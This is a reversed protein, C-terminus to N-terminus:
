LSLAEIDALFAARKDAPIEALSPGYKNRVSKVEEGRGAEILPRIADKMTDLSIGEDSVPLEPQKEADPPPEVSPAAAAGPPRGRRKTPAPAETTVPNENQPTPTEVPNALKTGSLLEQGIAAASLIINSIHRKINSNM